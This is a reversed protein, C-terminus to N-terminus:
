EDDRERMIEIAAYDLIGEISVEPKKVKVKVSLALEYKELIQAAIEEALSELLNRSSGNVVNKVLKYVHGYHITHNLDDTRGAKRLPATIEVDINFRQGIIKEEPNVGHYGYFMMGQLIVKDAM